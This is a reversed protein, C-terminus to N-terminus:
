VRIMKQLTFNVAAFSDTKNAVKHSITIFGRSNFLDINRQIEENLVKERQSFSLKPKFAIKVIYNETNAM